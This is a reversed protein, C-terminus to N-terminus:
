LTMKGDCNAGVPMEGCQFLVLLRIMLWLNQPVCSMVTDLSLMCPVLGQFAVDVWDSLSLADWGVNLTPLILVASQM